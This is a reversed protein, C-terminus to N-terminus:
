PCITEPLMHIYMLSIVKENTNELREEEKEGKKERSQGEKLITTM